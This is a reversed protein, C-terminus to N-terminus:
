SSHHLGFFTLNWPVHWTCELDEAPRPNGISRGLHMHQMGPSSFTCAIEPMLSLALTHHSCLEFDESYDQAAALGEELTTQMWAVFPPTLKRLCHPFSFAHPLFVADWRIAMAHPTFFPRPAAHVCLHNGICAPFSAIELIEIGIQTICEPVKYERIDRKEDSSM